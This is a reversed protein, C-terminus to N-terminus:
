VLPSQLFPLKSPELKESFDPSLFYQADVIFLIKLSVMSKVSTSVLRM